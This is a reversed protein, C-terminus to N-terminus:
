RGLLERLAAVLNHSAEVGGGLKMLAYREDPDLRDWERQGLTVGAARAREVLSPAPAVPPDASERAEIPLEKAAAGSRDRVVEEVFLRIAAREEPLDAPLHCIALREGRRLEQWQSLSVKLGVRDLKRRAAMPVCSLSAYVEHEFKFQRLMM